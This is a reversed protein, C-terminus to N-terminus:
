FRCKYLLIGKYIQGFSGEGICKNLSIMTNHGVYKENDRLLNSHHWNDEQSSNLNMPEIVKIQM